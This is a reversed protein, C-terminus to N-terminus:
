LPTGEVEEILEEARQRIGEMHPNIELAARFAKLAAEKQDLADYILGLGALAGFHRAELSLVRQIDAVSGDYNGLEYRLTARQNWGEAFEPELKVIADLNSLAMEQRGQSKYEFAQRLLLRVGASDTETWIQWIEHEIAKATEHTEVKKLAEFLRDLRPDSQDASVPAAVLVALLLASMCAGIYKM